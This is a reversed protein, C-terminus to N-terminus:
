VSARLSFAVVALALLCVISSLVIVRRSSRTAEPVTPEHGALQSPLVPSLETNREIRTPEDTDAHGDGVRLDTHEGLDPRSRRSAMNSSMGELWPSSRRNAQDTMLETMQSEIIERTTRRQGEFLGGVLAGLQRPSPRVEHADIYSELDLQMEAATSYRREVDFALAKSCIRELEAPLSADVDHISTPIDGCTLRSLVKADSVGHWMRRGTCAEYVMVGMAYIDARHDVAADAIAQEPAMYLVKGKIVGHRTEAIRGSAKAIGFDMVKVRGDFTVFLNQPTVDRHVIRLPTGDYDNLEHAYDIGALAECLIALHMGLSLETRAKARIRSLTEGELYEMALFLEGGSESVEHTQVVNPHNLRAAIRAEDLFMTVLEIEEYYDGKLRKLAVLKTFDIPAAAATAALYVDSMGGQGLLAVLRYNGLTTIAM